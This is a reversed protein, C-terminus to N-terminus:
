VVKFVENQIEAIKHPDSQSYRKELAKWIDSAKDFYMVSDAIGPSISRLIWSSVICNCRRWSAIRPDAEDPIPIADTAFGFKNKVELAIRMSRGWSAYNLETLPPSVLSLNLNETMHLYLPDDFEEVGQNPNTAMQNSSGAANEMPNNNGAEEMMVAAAYTRNRESAM